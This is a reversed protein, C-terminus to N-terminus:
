TIFAVDSLFCVGVDCAGIVLIILSAFFFINSHHTLKASRAQGTMIQVLAHFVCMDKATSVAKKM